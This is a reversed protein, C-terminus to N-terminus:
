SQNTANVGSTPVTDRAPVHELYADAGTITPRQLLQSIADPLATAAWNHVTENHQILKELHQERKALAIHIQQQKHQLTTLLQQHTDIMTQLTLLQQQQRLAEQEVHETRSAALTLQHRQMVIVAGIAVTVLLAIVAKTVIGM